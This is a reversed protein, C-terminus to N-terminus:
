GQDHEVERSRACDVCLWQKVREVFSLSGKAGCTDCGPKRKRQWPLARVVTRIDRSM